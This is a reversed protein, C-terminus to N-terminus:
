IILDFVVAVGLGCEGAIERGRTGQVAQGGAGEIGVGIELEAAFGEEAAGPVLAGGAAAERAGPEFEDGVLEADGGFDRGAPTGADKEGIFDAQAFGDLGAEDEVAEVESAPGVADENEDGFGEDVLPENFQQAAEVEAEAEEVFGAAGGDFVAGFAAVGEEIALEEDAGKGEEGVARAALALSEGGGPVEEDDVFGMVEAFGVGAAEGEDFAEGGVDGSEEEEAAGGLLGSGASVEGAEAEEIGGAVAVVGVKALFDLAVVGEGLLEVGEVGRGIGGMGGLAGFEEVAAADTADHEAVEAGGEAAEGLAVEMGRGEGVGGRGGADAPEGVEEAGGSGFFEEEDALGFGLDFGEFFGEAEFDLDGGGEEVFAEGEELAVALGSPKGFCGTGSKEEAGFDAAFAAIELEGAVEDEVVEGGVGIEEFLADAAEVADALAAGDVEVQGVGEAGGFFDEEAPVVFAEVGEGLGDGAGGGHGGGGVGEAVVDHGGRRGGREGVEEGFGLADLGLEGGGEGLAVVAEELPLGLARVGGGGQLVVDFGGVAVGGEVGELDAEEFGEAHLDFFELGAAPHELGAAGLGFGEGFEGYIAEAAGEVAAVGEGAFVDGEEAEVVGEEAAGEVEEEAAGLAGGGAGEEVAGWAGGEEEFDAEDEFADGRGVEVGVAEEGGEGEAEDDVVGAAVAGGIFGDGAGAGGIGVGGGAAGGAGGDEGAVEGGGDLLEGGELAVVEDGGAEFFHVADEAGFDGAEVGERFAPAVDAGFLSGAQAVLM